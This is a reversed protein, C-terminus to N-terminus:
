QCGSKSWRMLAVKFAGGFPHQQRLMNQPNAAYSAGQQCLTQRDWKHCTSCNKKWLAENQGEIPPFFPISDALQKITNGNVPFPGFPVPENFRLFAKPNHRL